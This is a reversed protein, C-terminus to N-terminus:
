KAFGPPIYTGPAGIILQGNLDCLCLCSPIDCGSYPWYEQSDYDKVVLAAGNTMIIYRGYDAVTWTSGVTVDRLKLTLGGAKYEYIADATCVITVHTLVFVQPYPYETIIGYTDLQYTSIDDLARIVKDEPFAGQSHVLFQSNRPNRKTARLGKELGDKFIITVERM